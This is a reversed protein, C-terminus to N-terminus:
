AMFRSSRSQKQWQVSPRARQTVRCFLSASAARSRDGSSLGLKACASVKTIFEKIEGIAIKAITIANRINDGLRTPGKPSRPM